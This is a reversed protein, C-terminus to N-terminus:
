HLKHSKPLIDKLSMRGSYDRVIVEIIQRNSVIVKGIWEKSERPEVQVMM